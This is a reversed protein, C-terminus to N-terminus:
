NVRMGDRYIKQFQIKGSAAWKVWRGDRKGNKYSSLMRTKGNEYWTTAAGHKLGSKYFTESRKQGNYYSGVVKGTFTTETGVLYCVSDREEVRSEEVAPIDESFCLGSLAIMLAALLPLFKM